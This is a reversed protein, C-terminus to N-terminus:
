KRGFAVRFSAFPSRDYLAVAAEHLQWRAQEGKSTIIYYFKVPGETTRWAIMWESQRLTAFHRFVRAPLLRRNVRRCVSWYLAQAEILEDTDSLVELIVLYLDQDSLPLLVREKAWQLAGLLVVILLLILWCTAWIQIVMSIYGISTMGGLENVRLRALSPIRFIVLAALALASFFAIPYKTLLKMAGRREIKLYGYPISDTLLFVSPTLDGM